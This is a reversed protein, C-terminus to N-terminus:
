VTGSMTYADEDKTVNLSGSAVAKGNLTTGGAGILYNGKKAFEADAPTYSAAPLFYDNAIFKAALTNGNGSFNISFTRKAGDKAIDAVQAETLNVEGPKPYKGTLPDLNDQVCSCFGFAVATVLLINLINKRMKKSNLNNPM